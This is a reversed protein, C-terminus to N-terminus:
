YIFPIFRYKVKSMYVKYEEDCSLFREEFIARMVYCAISFIGLLATFVSFHGIIFGFRLLMDSCYMPHRVVSYVGGTKVRRLAILIGFSRGLNFLSMIGLLNAAFIVGSSILLISHNEFAPSGFMFAGSIFALMAIAQHLWNRDVAKHRFRILLLTCMVFNQILFSWDSFQLNSWDADGWHGAFYIGYWGGDHKLMLSNEYIRHATVDLFFFFLFVNFCFQGYKDLFEKM